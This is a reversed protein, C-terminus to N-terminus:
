AVLKSTLFYYYGRVNSFINSLDPENINGPVIELGEMDQFKEDFDDKWADYTGGTAVIYDVKSFYDHVSDMKDVAENCVNKSHNELISAFKYIESKHLKKNVYRVEGKDLKNQLEAVTLSVGYVSKIDKVTRSFVERMGLNAFTNGIGMIEGRVITYDDLTGFGPDFVVVTSNFYKKAIPLQKGDPGISVSLLSGLPQQMIKVNNTDIDFAYHKWEGGGIQLDFEHHGALVETLEAMDDMYKPPLGTQVYLTKGNVNNISNNRCGLALGVEAIVHFMESHYRHRGYLEEESDAIESAIVENYALSGVTWIGNKNRYRIDSADPEKLTLRNEPIKRAYAPFCAVTNPSMIKVGSYGIDLGIVWKNGKAFFRRDLILTKTKYARTDM